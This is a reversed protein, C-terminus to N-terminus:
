PSPADAEGTVLAQLVTATDALQQVQAQLQDNVAKLLAGLESRSPPVEEDAEAQYMPTILKELAMYAHLTLTLYNAHDLAQAALGRVKPHFGTARQAGQPLSKAL